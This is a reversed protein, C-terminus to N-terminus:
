RDNLGKGELIRETHKDIRATRTKSQKAGSFHLVYARQRGPTLANFAKKLKPNQSFADKLEEPLKLEQKAKFAVKLGSREAAIAAQVYAKVTQEMRTIDSVSTFQLRRMAQSHEGPAVLLGEPDELLSGKLFGIACFDKFRHLVAVNGGEFTYCPQRWKLTETLGSALAITRLKRLERQWTESQKLYADVKPDRKSM